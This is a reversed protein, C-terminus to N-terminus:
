YEEFAEAAISIAAFFFDAIHLPSFGTDIFSLSLTFIFISLSAYHSIARIIFAPQRFYGALDALFSAFSDFSLM